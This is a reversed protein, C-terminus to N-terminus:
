SFLSPRLDWSFPISVTYENDHLVNLVMCCLIYVRTWTFICLALYTKMILEYSTPNFLLNVAFFLHLMETLYYAPQMIGKAGFVIPTQYVASAIHFFAASAQIQGLLSIRTNFFLILIIGSVATSIEVIGALIHTAMSVRRSLVMVFKPHPAHTSHFFIIFINVITSIFAILLENSWILNVPQAYYIVALAISPAGVLLSMATIIIIPAFLKKDAFEKEDLMMDRMKAIAASIPRDAVQMELDFLEVM